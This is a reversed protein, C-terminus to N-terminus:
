KKITLDYERGDNRLCQGIGTSSFGNFTFVCRMFGDTQSRLHLIGNGHASMVFASSSGTSTGLSQVTATSLGSTATGTASSVTNYNSLSYTGGSASYIWPGSFTEGDITATAEGSSGLTGGTSGLHVLGNTRDVFSLKAACGSILILFILCITIRYM